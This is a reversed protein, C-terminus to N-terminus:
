YVKQGAPCPPSSGQHEEFLKKMSKAATLIDQCDNYPIDKYGKEQFFSYLKTASKKSLFEKQLNENKESDIIFNIFDSRSRQTKSAAM